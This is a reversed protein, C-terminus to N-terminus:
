SALRTSYTGNQRRILVSGDKLNPIDVACIIEGNINSLFLTEGKKLKFDMQPKFLSDISKNSKSAILLIDEPQIYMSPLNWKKLNESDDSLYYTKASVASQNPNYIKVWDKDIESIYLPLGDTIKKTRLIVSVNGDKDAMDAGVKMEIGYFPEGNIEWKEFEYGERIEAKIDVNYCSIYETEASAGDESLRRSNLLSQAGEANTLSVRYTETEKPVEFIDRVSDIIFEPRKLIFDKIEIRKIDYTFESVWFSLTGESIANNLEPNGIESLEDLVKLANESSFAGSTLDCMTNAFKGRMDERQLMAKLIVSTGGMHNKRGIGLVDALTDEYYKKGYLGWAFEIDFMLLRWKGDNFPHTIREGEDAYYRWMKFNNNPWDKNDIYIQIAYYLMFNDLDVLACFENFIKDETFGYPSDAGEKVAKEALKYVHEWDKYAFEEGGNIQKGDNNKSKGKENNQLIQYNEKAGGYMQELYGASYAEKLWSFGYYKSNLFVAAPAFDQTDPFGAQKALTTSLEDRIAAEERDNANNRLTIRDFKTILEDNGNLAGDFFPYNFKGISYEKRAFLRWSKQDNARSWGGVVRGGAAQDILKNGKYDYAEVYMDRESERGGINYNAPAPPDIPGGKWVNKKYEDRLFGEVAVGDYYDYLGHPDSSLVFVYTEPSFREYIDTGTVYSKTVAESFEGYKVAVAKITTAKVKKGATIKIPGGYLKSTEDPDSGDVSYYIEAGPDGCYLEVEINEDYFTEEHSFTVPLVEPEPIDAIVEAAKPEPTDAIVGATETIQGSKEAGGKIGIIGFIGLAMVFVLIILRKM